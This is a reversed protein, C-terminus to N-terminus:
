FSVETILPKTMEAYSKQRQLALVPGSKIVTNCPKAGEFKAERFAIFTNITPTQKSSNTVDPM